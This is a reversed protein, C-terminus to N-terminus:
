NRVSRILDRATIMFEPSTEVLALGSQVRWFIDIKEIQDESIVRGSHEQQVYVVEAISLTSTYIQLHGGVAQDFIADLTSAFQSEESLYEIIINTCWYVSNPKNQM